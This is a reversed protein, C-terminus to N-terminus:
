CNESTDGSALATAMGSTLKMTVGRASSAASIGHHFAAGPHGAEAATRLWTAARVPDPAVGAAGNRYLKGLVFAAVTDHEAAAQTLWGLASAGEGRALLVEGLVRRAQPVGEQALTQLRTLAAPQRGAGALVQLQLPDAPLPSGPAAPAIFAVAALAAAGALVLAALRPPNRPKSPSTSAM